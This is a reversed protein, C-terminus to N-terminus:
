VLAKTPRKSDDIDVFQWFQGGYIPTRYGSCGRSRSFDPSSATCTYKQPAHLCRHDQQAEHMLALREPGDPLRQM